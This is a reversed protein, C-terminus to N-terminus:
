EEKSEFSIGYSIQEPRFNLGQFGPPPKVAVAPDFVLREHDMILCHDHFGGAGESLSVNGYEDISSSLQGTALSKVVGIWRRRPVPVEDWFRLALGRKAGWSEIREWSTQSIEDPDEGQSLRRDLKLDPVQEIPVQTATAVAARFCDDTLYPHMAYGIEDGPGPTAGWDIGDAGLRVIPYTRFPSLLELEAAKQWASVSGSATADRLGFGDVGTPRQLVIRRPKGMSGRPLLDPSARGMLDDRRELLM